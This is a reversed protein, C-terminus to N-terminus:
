GAQYGNAERVSKSCASINTHNSAVSAWMLACSLSIFEVSPGLIVIFVAESICLRSDSIGASSAISSTSKIALEEINIYQYIEELETGRHKIYGVGLPSRARIMDPMPRDHRKHNVQKFIWLNRIKKCEIRLSAVHLSRTSSQHM